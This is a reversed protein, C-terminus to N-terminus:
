IDISRTPLLSTERSLRLVKRSVGRKKHCDTLISIVTGNACAKNDQQAMVYTKKKDLLSLTLKSRLYFFAKGTSM